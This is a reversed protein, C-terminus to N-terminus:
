DHQYQSRGPFRKPGSRAFSPLGGMPGVETKASLPHTWNLNAAIILGAVLSLFSVGVLSYLYRHKKWFEAM